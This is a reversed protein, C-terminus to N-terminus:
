SKVAETVESDRGSTPQRGIGTLAIILMVWGMALPIFMYRGIFFTHIISHNKLLDLRILVSSVILLCILLGTLLKRNGRIGGRYLGIALGAVAALSSSWVVINWLHVDQWLGTWRYGTYWVTDLVKSLTLEAEGPGLDSARYRVAGFVSQFVPALGLYYAKILQGALYSALFGAYFAAVHRTAFKLGGLVDNDHLRALYGLLLLWATILMLHGDLL